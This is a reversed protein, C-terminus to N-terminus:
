RTRRLYVLLDDDTRIVITGDEAEVIDRVRHNILLPESYIVRGDEIRLHYLTQEKLTGVLLDGRWAPFEDRQMVILQSVGVSPVFAFVPKAFGEHRGQRPSPPWIKKGYDTGYSVRPFGYNQGEVLLNVEDGGQAAHETSWINGDPAIFLGQPNRHGITFVRARGTNVDLLWTKGYSNTPSWYEDAKPITPEWNGVTMLINGDALSALRGGVGNTIHPFKGDVTLTPPKCPASDFLTRWKGASPSSTGNLAAVTTSITSVRLLYCRKNAFWYSHSATLRVSDGFTQLLIDKVGFNDTLGLGLDSADAQFEAANVPISLALPHLMPKADAFWMAGQRDALLIGDGLAAIAGDRGSPPTSIKTVAISYLSAEITDSTQIAAVSQRLQFRYKHVLAGSVFAGAIVGLLLTVAGIRKWRSYPKSATAVKLM